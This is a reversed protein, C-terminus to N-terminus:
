RAVALAGRDGRGEGAHRADHRGDARRGGRGCARQGCDVTATVALEEITASTEAVAASQEATAAASEGAAARLENAVGGLVFSTTRVQLIMSATTAIQDKLTAEREAIRKVLRLAFLVFAIGGLLTLFAGILSAALAQTAADTAMANRQVAEQDYLRQLAGLPKLVDAERTNMLSLAILDTIHKESATGGPAGRSQAFTAVFADNANRAKAVVAAESAADRGLGATADNFAAHQAAVETLVDPSETMLYENAAEREHWFATAALEAQLSEVRATRASDKMGIAHQYRWISIGGATALLSLIAVSALVIRRTPTRGEAATSRAAAAHRDENM